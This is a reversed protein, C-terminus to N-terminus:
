FGGEYKAKQCSYLGKCRANKRATVFRITKREHLSGAGGYIAACDGASVVEVTITLLTFLGLVM